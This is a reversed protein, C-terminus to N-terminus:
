ELTSLRLMAADLQRANLLQLYSRVMQCAPDCAPDFVAEALWAGETQRATKVTVALDSVLGVEPLNFCLRLRAGFSLVCGTQLLCGDESIGVVLNRQGPASGAAGGDPAAELSVDFLVQFSQGKRVQGYQVASPYQLFFLPEPGHARGLARCHAVAVRDAAVLRLLCEVGADIHVEQGKSMPPDLALYRQPRYGRIVSLCRPLTSLPTDMVVQTGPVFLSPDVM